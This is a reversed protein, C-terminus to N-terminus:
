GGVPVENFFSDATYTGDVIEQGKHALAGTINHAFRCVTEHLSKANAESLPFLNYVKTRLAEHMSLEPVETMAQEALTAVEQLTEAPAAPLMRTLLIEYCRIVFAKFMRDAKQAPTENPQHISM